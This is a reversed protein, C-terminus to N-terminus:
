PKKKTKLITMAKAELLLPTSVKKQKASTPKANRQVRSAFGLGQPTLSPAKWHNFMPTPAAHQEGERQMLRIAHATNLFGSGQAHSGFGKIRKSSDILIRKIQKSTLGPKLSLMLAITGTVHPAAMSTGSEIGFGGERDTSVIDVGPATITIGRGRSSFSAIRKKQDCAAVAVVDPYSAPEDIYRNNPGSNGASSVVIIGRQQAKRITARLSQSPGDLGLSMNIIDMGERICWEIGDVIDSVYGDGQHDLSKVAYLQIDSAVGVLMGQKGLAAVTGAIHTGHGNDDDYSQGYSMTNVGGRIWLDPHPSIGTDIFGVKVGAGRTQSWVAPAQIARIGWPIPNNEYGKKKTSKGSTRNPKRHRIPHAHVTVDNEIHHIAPHELLSTIALQGDMHCCLLHAADITKIPPYGQDHLQQICHFYSERDRMVIMKRVRREAPVGHIVATLLQSLKKTM